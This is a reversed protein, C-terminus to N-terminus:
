GANRGNSSRVEASGRVALGVPFWAWCSFRRDMHMLLVTMMLGLGAMIAVTAYGLQSQNRWARWLASLFFGLFCVAAAIGYEAGFALYTTEVWDANGNSEVARAGVMRNGTGLPHDGMLELGTVISAQHLQASTDQGTRSYFLFDSLGLIPISVVFLALALTVYFALRRWQRTMVALLTIALATGLWASRTISCILGAALMGAPLPNRCYVWWLIMAIMCLAAFYAPGVMTSAERIGVFGVGGFAATLTGNETTADTALYLATRPGEGLIFVETMGLVALIAIIWVARRAWLSEQAANLVTVRGVFYPLAFQFDGIWSVLMGDFVSRISAITVLALMFWDAAVPRFGNRRWLVFLLLLLPIEKTSASVLTMYPLGFFKGLEIIMYDVPMFALLAGLVGIPHRFIVGLLAVALLVAPAILPSVFFASIAALILLLVGSSTRFAPWFPNGLPVDM